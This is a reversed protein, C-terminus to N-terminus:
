LKSKPAKVPEIATLPHLKGAEFCYIREWCIHTLNNPSFHNRARSGDLRKEHVCGGSRRGWQKFGAESLRKLDVILNGNPRPM